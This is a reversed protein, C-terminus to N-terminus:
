AVMDPFFDRGDEPSYGERRRGAAIYNFRQCPKLLNSASIRWNRLLENIHMNIFFCVSEVQTDSETNPEIIM